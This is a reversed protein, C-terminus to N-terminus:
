CIKSGENECLATIKDFLPKLDCVLTYKSLAKDSDERFIWEHRCTSIDTLLLHGFADTYGVLYLSGRAKDMVVLGKRFKLVESM